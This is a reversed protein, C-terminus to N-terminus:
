GNPALVCRGYIIHMTEAALAFRGCAPPVGIHPIDTEDAGGGPRYSVYLGGWSVAKRHNVRGTLSYVVGLYGIPRRTLCRQFLAFFRLQFERQPLHESRQDRLGILSPALRFQPIPLAPM